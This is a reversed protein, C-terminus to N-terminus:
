YCGESQEQEEGQERGGQAGRGASAKDAPRCRRQQQQQELSPALAIVRQVASPWRQATSRVSICVLARRRVSGLQDVPHLLGFPVSSKAAELPPPTPADQKSCSLLSPRTLTSSSRTHSVVLVLSQGAAAPNAPSHASIRNDSSVPRSRSLPLTSSPLAPCPYLCSARVSAPSVPARARLATVGLAPTLHTYANVAVRRASNVHSVAVTATGGIRKSRCVASAPSWPPPLAVTRKSLCALVRSIAPGSICMSSSLDRHVIM